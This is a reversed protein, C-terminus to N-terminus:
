VVHLTLQVHWVVPLFVNLLYQNCKTNIVHHPLTIVVRTVSMVISTHHVKEHLWITKRNFQIAYEHLNNNCMQHIFM